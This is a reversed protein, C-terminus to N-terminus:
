SPQIGIYSVICYEQDITTIEMADEGSTEVFKVEINKRTYIASGYKNHLVVKKMREISSIKKKGPIHTEQIYLEDFTTKQM